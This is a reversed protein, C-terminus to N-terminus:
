NESRKPIDLVFQVERGRGLVLRPDHLTATVRIQTPWPTFDDRLLPLGTAVTNYGDDQNFGFIAAYIRVGPHGVVNSIVAPTAANGDIGEITRAVLWMHLNTVERGQDPAQDPPLPLPAHVIKPMAQQALTVGSAADPLGFWPHPGPRTPPNADNQLWPDVVHPEFGRMVWFSGPNAPDALPNAGPVFLLDPYFLGTKAIVNRLRDVFRFEVADPIGPDNPINPPPYAQIMQRGTGPAWTWDVKFSSCNTLLTPSSLLETRRSLDSVAKESRPWGLLGVSPLQLTAGSLSSPLGFCGRMIRDRQSSFERVAVSPQNNGVGFTQSDQPWATGQPWGLPAGPTPGFGLTWPLALSRILYTYPPTGLVLPDTSPLRLTPAIQRRVRDLDSAAVDVWGSQLLQSPILSASTQIFNRDRSERWHWRNSENSPPLPTIGSNSLDGFISPASSPGISAALPYNSPEPYYTAYGGDDALLAMKRALTWQRAEPQNPDIEATVPQTYGYKFRVERDTNPTWTWPVIPADPSGTGARWGAVVPALFPPALAPPPPNPPLVETTLRPIQVGHAYRVMTARGQQGGGSTVLDGPGAWRASVETGATFFVIQDCRLTALPDLQPNLLPAGAGSTRRHIDNPVEVCLIAMFGDRSIRDIDRRMQEELVSSQQLVDASAEGTSAVKSATNFVKSTAIIVALLVVVAVLLEIVTFARRM